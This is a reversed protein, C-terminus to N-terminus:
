EESHRISEIYDDESQNCEEFNFEHYKTCFLGETTNDKVPTEHEELYKNLEDFSNFKVKFEELDRVYLQSPNVLSHYLVMMKDKNDTCDKVLRIAVYKRGSKKNICLVCDDGHLKEVLEADSLKISLSM